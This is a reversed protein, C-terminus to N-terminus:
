PCRWPLRNIVPAAFGIKLIILSVRVMEGGFFVFLLSDLLKRFEAFYCIEFLWSIAFRIAFRVSGAFNRSVLLLPNKRSRGDKHDASPVLIHQSAPSHFKQALTM